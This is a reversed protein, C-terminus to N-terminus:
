RPTCPNFFASMASSVGPKTVSALLQQPTPNSRSTQHPCTKSFDLPRLEFVDKMSFPIRITNFGLLKIRRVQTVFDSRVARLATIIVILLGCRVSPYRAFHGSLRDVFQGFLRDLSPFFLCECLMAYTQWQPLQASKGLIGLRVRTRM